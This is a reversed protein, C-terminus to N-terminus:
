NTANSVTFTGSQGVASTAPNYMDSAAIPPIAFKGAVSLQARYTFTRPTRNLTTYILIRDERIESFEMDGGLSDSVPVFGGPLLDSIVANSVYDTIGRTRVTIKVDVIDGIAGSHIENGNIDYYHRSIEIGNSSPTTNQPFGESLLTYFMSNKSKCTDCNIRLKTANMPIDVTMIHDSKKTELKKDNAFVAIDDDLSSDDAAGLVGNVIAAATFSDYNGTNIYNQISKALTDSNTDFYRRKIFMYTADNAIPNNFQSNYIKSDNSASTYKSVLNYAKDTQKLMKYSAALYVGIISEQWNKINENAYEELADLYSTTVYDNFTLVYIAFSKAFADTPSTTNQAAVDRLFDIGRAFMSQPVNFGARRAMTLFNIAYATLYVTTADSKNETFRSGSTWMAFSGDSNQRNMLIKITDNISTKVTDDAVQHESKFNHSSAFSIYPMIRSIVQETCIYKYNKLYQILPRGLIIPTKSIYLTRTAGQEYFNNEIHKITTQSSDLIGMKIDTTFTSTPRVSMTSTTRRSAIPINKEDFLTTSVNIEAPGPVNEAKIDFAWLKETNEPLSINKATNDNAEIPGSVSADCRATAASGSEEARNSIVTNVTFNDGPAVFLPSAVSIIVPSQVRTATSASGVRGTTAAVAYISLEGNFYEPIDFKVTQSENAVTNIIGSYFAVSPISKREFPNTLPIDMDILGNIFDSGGTKAVERLINYEPLLLSLIQYTEVQLAAKRFFYKIPNPINYKAVQLIGTNIAFVMVRADKDTKVDISLKNDKVINPADLTVSIKHNDINTSFPAVAYTYPTTFVDRSNIDRVFSVNVYGTGEFDQPLTIKQTSSTTSTTFWSHAYVRDREITILGTGTYPAIIGVNITDGPKYEPADLKIKLDAHADTSLEVNEDSAVFYEINALINDDKDIIQLYYTGGNSTNLEIESGKSSISIQSQKIITDHSITQYKYHNNFDKVLSTLNDRRVLKMSLDNADVSKASSDIAILKIKRSANRKVYTLESETHYGVLYDLNSVRTNIITQISKGDGAEFGSIKLNLTYTGNPIERDFKINITANGNEDTRVNDIDAVFTQASNVFGDSMAGNKIFNSTFKYDRYEKFSFDTPRLSANASVRRDTAPTEYLNNLSVKAVINNPSIWGDTKEDNITATMKMTDPVFEQVMFNGNGITSDIHGRGNLTYIGIEYRGIAADSSLKYTSDLMGDAALSVKKDFITHGRPDTIELKIPIGAVSTFNKNEIIAGITLQEGPRYIGRDSFIFSKLPTENSAYAGEIDFKSYEAAQASDANYPIFSIDSDSRAVIAVPEKSDHYESWPLYPIDVRGDSNTSGAWIPSGNRGLVTVDVDTAPRGNSLMSVFVVSSRDLNIKRIIGLNTLLILRADGYESENQTAGTKIIFIGTKDNYTRDLYEGLNISAYNVSNMSTNAFPIKKQFVTAMDYQDFIWPARFELDSFLNYTQTILHNIENSDVKYLNVYATDVGGRAVIGLQKDGALSLLAGTGAIKVSRKPYAVQMVRSIGNKSTFGNASHIDPKVSVYIYRTDKDNIDYAFAYQYVGAPNVFDSHTLNIKQAKNIVDANIEDNAWKHPENDADEDPTNRPLLYASVYKGWNTDRYAAATMNLLILQRPNGNKDDATITALDSIKFFNDSSDIIVKATIKDTRSKNDADTIRNIKLRLTQSDNTVQIPATRIIATRMYRDFKVNFDIKRGDLRVLVKDSFDATQIPYNFSIVAVGVVYRDGGPLPYVNFLETTAHIPATKFSLNQKNPRVDRSFMRDSIQVTFRTASPWDQEPKFEIEYPNTITWRGRLAPTIKINKAIEASTMDTNFPPNNPGSEIDYSIRLPTAPVLDRNNNVDPIDDSLIVLNDEALHAAVPSSVDASVRTINSSHGYIWRYALGGIVVVAVAIGLIKLCRAIFVSNKRKM